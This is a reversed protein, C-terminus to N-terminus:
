EPIITSSMDYLTELSMIKYPRANDTNETIAIKLEEKVRHFTNKDLVMYGNASFTFRRGHKPYTIHLEDKVSAILVKQGDYKSWGDIRFSVGRIGTTHSDPPPTLYAQALMSRVERASLGGISDGSSVPKGPYPQSFQNNITKKIDRYLRAYDAKGIKLSEFYPLSLKLNLENGHVDTLLRADVIPVQSSYTQDGIEMKAVQIVWILRDGKRIVRYYGHTRPALTKKRDEFRLMSFDLFIFKVTVPSYELLVPTRIPTPPPGPYAIPKQSALKREMPSACAILVAALLCVIWSFYKIQVMTEKIHRNGPPHHDDASQGPKVSRKQVVVIYRCHSNEWAARV